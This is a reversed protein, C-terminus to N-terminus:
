DMQELRELREMISKLKDEREKLTKNEAEMKQYEPSYMTIEKVDTYILVGDMARLYENRLTNEDEIFYVDDVANNSKGQLVNIMARSMGHKELQTAHFKRLM